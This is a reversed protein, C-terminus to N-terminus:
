EFSPKQNQQTASRSVRFNFVIYRGECKTWTCLFPLSTKTFSLNQYKSIRFYLHEGPIAPSHIIQHELGALWRCKLADTAAPRDRPNAAMLSKVLDIGEESVGDREFGESPFESGRCYNYLLESNLEPGSDSTLFPDIQCLDTIETDQYRELFPIESTLIEHVVAGLAWLDVAKTYSDRTSTRMNRPLLGLQEPAQYCATGGGSRLSTGLSQKSIGFDTIKVWIPSTSM